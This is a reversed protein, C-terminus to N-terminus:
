YTIVGDRLDGPLDTDDYNRDADWVTFRIGGTDRDVSIDPDYNLHVTTYQDNLDAFVQKADITRQEIIITESYPRLPELQKSVDWLWKVLDAEDRIKASSNLGVRTVVDFTTTLGSVSREVQVDARHVGHQREILQEMARHNDPQRNVIIASCGTGGVLLAAALAAAAGARITRTM